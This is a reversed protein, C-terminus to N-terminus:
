PWQLTCWKFCTKMEVLWCCWYRSYYDQPEIGEVHDVGVNGGVTLFLLTRFTAPLSIRKLVYYVHHGGHLAISRYTKPQRSFWTFWAHIPNSDMFFLWSSPIQKNEEGSLSTSLLVRLMKSAQIL